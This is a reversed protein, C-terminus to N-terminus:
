NKPDPTPEPHPHHPAIKGMLAEGRAEIEGLEVQETEPPCAEGMLRQEPKEECGKFASLSIMGLLLAATRKLGAFIRHRIGVPCDTTLV